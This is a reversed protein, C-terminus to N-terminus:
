NWKSIYVFDNEIAKNFKKIQATKKATKIYLVTMNIDSFNKLAM